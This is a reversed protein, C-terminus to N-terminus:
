SRAFRRGLWGRAQCFVLGLLAAMVLLLLVWKTLNAIRLVTIILGSPDVVDGPTAGSLDVRGLGTMLALNEIQDVVVEALLAKTGMSSLRQNAPSSLPSRYLALLGGLLLANGPVFLIIDAWSALRVDNGLRHAIESFEESSTARQVETVNGWGLILAMGIVALLLGAVIMIIAQKREVPRSALTTLTPM